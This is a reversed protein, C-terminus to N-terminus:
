RGLRIHNWADFSSIDVGNLMKRFDRDYHAKIDQPKKVPRTYRKVRGSRYTGSDDVVDWKDLNLHTELESVARQYNDAREYVAITDKAYPFYNKFEGLPKAMRLAKKYKEKYHKLSKIPGNSWRICGGEISTDFNDLLKLLNDMSDYGLIGWEKAIKGDLDLMNNSGSQVCLLYTRNSNMALGEIEEVFAVRDFEIDVSMM